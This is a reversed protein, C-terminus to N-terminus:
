WTARRASAKSMVTKYWLRLRLGLGFGVESRAVDPQVPQELLRIEHCQVHRQGILRPAHDAPAFQAQHFLRGHEDVGRASADDIVVGQQFGQLATPDVCGGEVHGFGFGQGAVVGERASSLRTM